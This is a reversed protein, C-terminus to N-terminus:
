AGARGLCGGRVRAAIQSQGKERGRRRAAERGHSTMRFTAEMEGKMEKQAGCGPKHRTEGREQNGPRLGNGGWGTRCTAVLGDDELLARTVCPRM